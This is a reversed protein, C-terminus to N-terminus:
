RKFPETSYVTFHNNRESLARLKMLVMKWPNNFGVQQCRFNQHEAICIAVRRLVGSDRFVSLGYM